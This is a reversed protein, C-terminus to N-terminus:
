SPSQKPVNHRAIVPSPTDNRHVSVGLAAFPGLRPLGPSTHACVGKLVLLGLFLTGLGFKKSIVRLQSTLEFFVMNQVKRRRYGHHGRAFAM